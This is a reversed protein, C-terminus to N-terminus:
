SLRAQFRGSSGQKGKSLVRASRPARSAGTGRAARWHGREGSNARDHALGGRLLRELEGVEAHSLNAAPASREVLVVPHVDRM